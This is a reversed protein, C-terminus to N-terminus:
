QLRATSRTKCVNLEGAGSGLTLRGGFSNDFHITADNPSLVFSRVIQDYPHLTQLGQLVGAVAQANGGSMGQSLNCGGLGDVSGSISTIRTHDTGASTDPRIVQYATGDAARFESQSIQAEIQSALPLGVALLATAWRGVRAWRAHVSAAPEHNASM